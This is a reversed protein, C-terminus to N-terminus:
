QDLAARVRTALLSPPFPKLILSEAGRHAVDKVAADDAYGTMFVVKMEPRLTTLRRALAPGNIGPMVVDTLLLDIPTACAAAQELADEGSSAVIVRYGLRELITRVLGRVAEDDEAVLITQTGGDAHIPAAPPPAPVGGEAAPLRVTLCTGAGVQSEVDISGGSQIVIGHVMALGLGTGRGSEKTTFFPEFIYPLSDAPIGTGTDRVTLQVYHGARQHDQRRRAGQEDVTINTTALTLRGGNPMADRANAVLNILVLDLQGADALVPHLHAAMDTQLEIHEGILRGLM